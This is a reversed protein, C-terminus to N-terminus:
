ALFVTHKSITYTTTDNNTNHLTLDTAFLIWHRYYVLFGIIGLDKGFGLVGFYMTQPNESGGFFFVNTRLHFFFANNTFIEPDKQM